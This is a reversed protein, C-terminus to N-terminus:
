LNPYRIKLLAIKIQKILPIATKINIQTKPTFTFKGSTQFIRDSWDSNIGLIM